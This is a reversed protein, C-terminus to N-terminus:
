IIFSLLPIKEREENIKRKTNRKKQIKQFSFFIWKVSLSTAYM